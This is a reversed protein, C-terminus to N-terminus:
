ALKNILNLDSNISVSRGYHDWACQSSASLTFRSTLWRSTERINILRGSVYESDIKYIVVITNKDQTEWVDGIKFKPEIQIPKKIMCKRCYNIIQATTYEHKCEKKDKPKPFYVLCKSCFDGNVLGSIFFHECKKNEEKAVFVKDKCNACWLVKEEKQPPNDKEEYKDKLKNLWVGAKDFNQNMIDAQKKLLGKIELNETELKNLRADFARANENIVEQKKEQSMEIKKLLSQAWRGAIEDFKEVWESFEKKTVFNKLKPKKVKRREGLPNGM